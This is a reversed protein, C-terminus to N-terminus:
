ISCLGTSCDTEATGIITKVEAEIAKIAEASSLPTLPEDGRSGSRYVTVGKLHPAYELLLEAYDEVPYDEPINVTKSIANDVHKQCVMQVKMHDEVSLEHSSVFAAQQEETVGQDYMERFLPDVVIEMKLINKNSEPDADYYRREYAPAFLPEIGSSTGAIISTTGTPAITMTACNRIGYEAIQTRIHEPLTKCFGSLLMKKNFVEFSGKERALDISAQYSEVKIFDFIQDITELGANSGYKKGLLILAHGLGLVGLGVRRVENCNEEIIPM